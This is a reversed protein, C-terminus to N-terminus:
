FLDETEISSSAPPPQLTVAISGCKELGMVSMLYKRSNTLETKTRASSTLSHPFTPIEPLVDAM